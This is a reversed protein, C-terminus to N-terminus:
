IEIVMAKLGAWKALEAVAANRGARYQRWERKSLRQPPDPAWEITMCHVKGRRPVPMTVTVTRHGVCFSRTLAPAEGSMPQVM